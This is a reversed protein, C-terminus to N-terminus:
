MNETFYDILQNGYSGETEQFTDDGYGGFVVNQHGDVFISDDGDSGYITNDSGRIFLCDDQQTLYIEVNHLETTVGVSACVCTPTGFIPNILMDLRLKELPLHYGGVYAAVLADDITIDFM